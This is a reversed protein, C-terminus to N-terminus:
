ITCVQIIWKNPNQTTNFSMAEILMIFQDRKLYANGDKDMCGFLLFRM